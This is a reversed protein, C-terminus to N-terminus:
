EGITRITNIVYPTGSDATTTSDTIYAQGSSSSSYISCKGSGIGTQSVVAQMGTSLGKGIKVIREKSNCPRETRIDIISNSERRLTIGCGAM